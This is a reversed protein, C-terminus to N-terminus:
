WSHRGLGWFPYTFDTDTFRNVSQSGNVGSDGKRIDEMFRWPSFTTSDQYFDEDRMMAQSPVCAVDGPFITTGDSFVFPSLVKRRVSISDSPHLRSSEKLFADLLSANDLASMSLPCIGEKGPSQYVQALEQRLNEVYDGNDCLDQLAYVLTLAPQHIAAFWTGLLVQVIKQATWESKRSNADVFFQICDTPKHEETNKYSWGERTRALRCEVVPTLREVLTRSAKHNRMLIPALIPHLLSPSLRLIEATFFLDEPYALAAKLFIPDASLDPGFFVFASAATMIRKAMPFCSMRALGDDRQSKVFEKDFSDAVIQSLPSCLGPLHSSLVVRFARTHLNGNGSMTDQVELGNM